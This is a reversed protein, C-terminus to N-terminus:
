CIIRSPRARSRSEASPVWRGSSGVCAGKGRAETSIILSRRPRRPRSFFYSRFCESHPITPSWVLGEQEGPLAGGERALEEDIRENLQDAELYSRTIM